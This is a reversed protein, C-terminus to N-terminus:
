HTPCWKTVLCCVVVQSSLQHQSGCIFQSKLLTMNVISHLDAEELLLGRNQSKIEEEVSPGHFHFDSM